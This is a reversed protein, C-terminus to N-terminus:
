IVGREIMDALGAKGFYAQHRKKIVKKPALAHNGHAFLMRARLVDFSYGRGMRNVVRIVSNLAEVYANTAGHTFHAFIETEWNRTRQGRQHGLTLIQRSPYAEAYKNM